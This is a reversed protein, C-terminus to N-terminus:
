YLIKESCAFSVYKSRASSLKFQTTFKRLIALLANPYPLM